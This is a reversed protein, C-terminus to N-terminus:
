DDDEGEMEGTIVFYLVVVSLATVVPIHIALMLKKFMSDQLPLSFTDNHSQVTGWVDAFQKM